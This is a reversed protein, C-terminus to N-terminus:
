RQFVSTGCGAIDSCHEVWGYALTTKLREAVSGGKLQAYNGWPILLVLLIEGYGLSCKYETLGVCKPKDSEVLFHTVSLWFRM